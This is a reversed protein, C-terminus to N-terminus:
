DGGIVVRRTDRGPDSHTRSQAAHGPRNGYGWGGRRAAAADAPAGSTTFPRSPDADFLRAFRRRCGDRCTGARRVIELTAVGYYGTLRREANASDFRSAPLPTMVERLEAWTEFLAPEEVLPEPLLLEGPAVRALAAPLNLAAHQRAGLPQLWVEGTSMDLWALGLESGSIAVAALYNHQRADLLVDESLTGPTVVRVVERRVISKSGRKKAAAPDEVQECVAVRHGAKILKPLYQEAAHVPVGAMPIPTGDQHGRKTLAIDLAEAAAVADDFFLEYFDGMRFFLLCDPYAAKAEHWQAFMPTTGAVVQPPAASARAADLIQRDAPLSSATPDSMNASDYVVLLGAGFSFRRILVTTLVETQSPTGVRSTSLPLGLYM